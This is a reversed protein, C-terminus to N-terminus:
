DGADVGGTWFAIGSEYGKQGDNDNLRLITPDTITQDGVVIANIDNLTIFRASDNRFGTADAGSALLDDQADNFGGDFSGQWDGFLVTTDPIAVFGGSYGAGDTEDSIFVAIAGQTSILGSLDGNPTDIVIQTDSAFEAYHVDGVLVGNATFTGDILFDKTDIPNTIFGKVTNDMGDAGDFVVDLDFIAETGNISLM